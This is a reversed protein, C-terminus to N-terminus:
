KPPWVYRSTAVTSPVGSPVTFLRILVPNAVNRALRASRPTSGAPALWHRSGLVAHGMLLQHVKQTGVSEIREIGVLHSQDLSVEPVARSARGFHCAM